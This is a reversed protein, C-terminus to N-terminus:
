QQNKFKIQECLQRASTMMQTSASPQHGYVVMIVVLPNREAIDKAAQISSLSLAETDLIDVECGRDLLYGTILRAWLPPEIATLESGLSQYIAERGGPTVIIADM